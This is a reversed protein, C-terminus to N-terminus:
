RLINEIVDVVVNTVIDVLLVDNDVRVYRYHDQPHSLQYRLERPLAYYRTQKSLAKGKQWKKYHKTPKCSNKKKVFGPPCKGRYHQKGYYSYIARKDSKDFRQTPSYHKRHKNHQKKYRNQEYRSDYKDYQRNNEPWYPRDAFASSAMISLLLGAATVLSSKKILGLM